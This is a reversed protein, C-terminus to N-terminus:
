IVPNKIEELVSKMDQPKVALIIVDCNAVDANKRSVNISKKTLEGLSCNKDSVYIDAKAIGSNILNDM